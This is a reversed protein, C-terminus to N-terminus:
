KQRMLNLIYFIEKWGDCRLVHGTKRVTFTSCHTTTPFIFWVIFLCFYDCVSFSILLFYFIIWVGKGGWFLMYYKKFASAVKESLIWLWKEMTSCEGGYVHKITEIYKLICICRIESLGFIVSISMWIIELEHVVIFSRHKSKQKKVFCLISLREETPTDM